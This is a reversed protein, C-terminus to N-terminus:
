YLYYIVLELSNRVGCRFKPDNHMISVLNPNLRTPNSPLSNIGSKGDINLLNDINYKNPKVKSNDIGFQSDNIKIFFNSDKTSINESNKARINYDEKSHIIKIKKAVENIEKFEYNTYMYDLIESVTMGEKAISQFMDSIAYAANLEEQNPPAGNTDTQTSLLAKVTDVESMMSIYKSINSERLPSVPTNKIYDAM